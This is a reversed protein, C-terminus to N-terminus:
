TQFGDCPRQIVTGVALMVPKIDKGGYTSAGHPNVLEAKSPLLYSQGVWSVPAVSGAISRETHSLNRHGLRWGPQAGSVQAAVRPSVCAGMWSCAM